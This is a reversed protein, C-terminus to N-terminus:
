QINASLKVVKENINRELRIMENAFGQLTEMMEILKGFCEGATCKTERLIASQRYVEAECQIIEQEIERITVILRGSQESLAEPANENQPRVLKCSEAEAHAEHAQSLPKGREEQSREIQADYQREIEKATHRATDKNARVTQRACEDNDFQGERKRVEDIHLQLRAMQGGLRGIAGKTDLYSYVLVLTYELSDIQSIIEKKRDVYEAIRANL